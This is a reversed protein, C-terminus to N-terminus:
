TKRRGPGFLDMKVLGPLGRGVAKGRCRPYGEGRSGGWSLLWVGSEKRLLRRSWVAFGERAPRERARPGPGAGSFRVEAGVAGGGVGHRVRVGVWGPWGGGSM